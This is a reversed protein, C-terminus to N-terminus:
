AAPEQYVSYSYIKWGRKTWYEVLTLAQAYTLHEHDVNGPGFVADVQARTFESPGYTNGNATCIYRPSKPLAPRVREYTMNGPIATM